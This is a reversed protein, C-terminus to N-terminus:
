DVCRPDFNVRDIVVNEGRRLSDVLQRECEQRRRSPAEDQSIRTWRRRILRSKSDPGSGPGSGSTSDSSSSTWEPTQSAEVLANSFTSKASGPLGVLILVVQPELITSTSSTAVDDINKVLAVAPERSDPQTGDMKKLKVIQPDVPGDQSIEHTELRTSHWARHLSPILSAARRASRDTGPWASIESGIVRKCCRGDM